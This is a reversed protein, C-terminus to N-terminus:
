PVMVLVLIFVKWTPPTNTLSPVMSFVPRIMAPVTSFVPVRVMWVPLRTTVSARSFSPVTSFPPLRCRSSPVPAATALRPANVTSPPWDPNIVWLPSLALSTSAPPSSGSNSWCAPVRSTCPPVTLRFSSCLAPVAATVPPVKAWPAATDPPVNETSPVPSTAPRSCVAPATVTDPPAILPPVRKDPPWNVMVWPASIPLSAHAASDMGAPLVASTVTCPPLISPPM